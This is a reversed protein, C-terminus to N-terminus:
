TRPLGSGGGGGVRWLGVHAINRSLPRTQQIQEHLNNTRVEDLTGQPSVLLKLLAAARQTEPQLIKLEQQHAATREQEKRDTYEKEECEINDVDGVAADKTWPSNAAVDGKLRKVYDIAAVGTKEAM